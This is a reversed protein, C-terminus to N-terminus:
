RARRLRRRRLTHSGRVKSGWRVLGLVPSDLLIQRPVTRDTEPRDDSAGDRDFLLTGNQDYLRDGQDEPSVATSFDNELEAVRM